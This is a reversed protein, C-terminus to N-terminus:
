IIDYFISDDFVINDTTNKNLGPSNYTIFRQLQHLTKYSISNIWKKIFENNSNNNISVIMKSFITKTFLMYIEEYTKTDNKENKINNIAEKICKEEEKFSLLKYTIKDKNNTIYTFYGNEDGISTFDKYIIEDLNKIKQSNPIKYMNGYNIKRIWLIVAEKDGSCLQSIDINDKVINKLLMYCVLNNNQIKQSVLINEDKTTLYRVVIKGNRLPSNIPYCEGKSPLNITIYKNDDIM